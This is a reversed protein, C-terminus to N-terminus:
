YEQHHTSHCGFYTSYNQLSYIDAYQQMQQIKIGMLYLYTKRIFIVVIELLLLVM